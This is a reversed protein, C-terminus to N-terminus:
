KCPVYGMHGCNPMLDAWTCTQPQHALTVPGGSLWDRIGATGKVYSPLHGM